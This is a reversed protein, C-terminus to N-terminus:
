LLAWFKAILAGLGDLYPLWYVIPGRGKKKAAHTKRTIRAELHRQNM